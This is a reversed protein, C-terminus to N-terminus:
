VQLVDELKKISYHWGLEIIRRKKRRNQNNNEAMENFKRRLSKYREKKNNEIKVDNSNVNEADIEKKETNQQTRNKNEFICSETEEHVVSSKEDKEIKSEDELKLNEKKITEENMKEENKMEEENEELTNVNPKRDWIKEYYLDFILQFIKSKLKEMEDYSCCIEINRIKENLFEINKPFKMKELIIDGCTRSSHNLALSLRKYNEVSFKCEYFIRLWRQPNRWVKELQEVYADVYKKWIKPFNKMIENLVEDWDVAYSKTKFLTVLVKSFENSFKKGNEEAKESDKKPNAIGLQQSVFKVVNHACTDEAKKAGKGLVSIKKRIIFKHQFLFDALKRNRSQSALYCLAKYSIYTQNGAVLTNEKMFKKRAEDEDKGAPYIKRFFLLM